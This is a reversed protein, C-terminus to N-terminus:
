PSGIPVTSAKVMATVAVDIGSSSISFLAKFVGKSTVYKIMKNDPIM